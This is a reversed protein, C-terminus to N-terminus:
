RRRLVLSDLGLGGSVCTLRLRHEGADLEILQPEADGGLVAYRWNDRTTSFGGTAPLALDGVSRGDVALTRRVGDDVTCYRLALAYRGKVPAKVTWEVWHGPEAWKTIMRGADGIRDFARATGGDQAVIDEAEVLVVDGADEEMLWLPPVQVTFGQTDSVGEGARLTLCAQHLGPRDYEHEVVRGEGRSGDGFDWQYTVGLGAPVVSASADFTLRASGAFPAVTRDGGAHALPVPPDERLEALLGMLHPTVRIYMSFTKGMGSISRIAPETGKLLHRALKRDPQGARQSLRYAYGIGDFLLFNSWAGASSKPCSTYRFGNVEEVWMDDILFHSAMTIGRAVRPDDTELHYWKLGTLLVAVMFGANGYHAPQCLCHGPVMMRRWGGGKTNFKSTPTQRELVREVMIKAANLYFPDRTARYVALTLILHWGSDRCNSFEYGIMRYTDYHDAIKLATEYSRRDGTLFFHDMHGECWTHSVSFGGRPSGQNRGPLPSKAYYEGVHGICHSYVCGVRAPSAHRHVTDVDRNHLEAEEGARFFRLDGSRAFQLFFAHQTDYEINGWNIVREGWWDGFNLMGYERIRERNGLFADLTRNVKQDYEGVVPRGPDAVALEGFAGSAVYWSPPATAFLPRDLAPTSGDLRLWVEQTKTMGQRLKYGGVEGGAGEPDFWFFLKHEDETGKAWDYEDLALKPMLWLTTGESGVELDKPYNQWFDRVSVAGLRGAFRKGGGDSSEYRDDTHQRAYQEVGGLGPLRWAVSRITSFEDGSEGYAVTMLVRALALGPYVHLRAEYLFPSEGLPGEARLCRRLAGDEETTGSSVQAVHARGEADTLILQGLDPPSVREVAPSSPATAEAGYELAYERSGGSHRFDLLLWKVSGDAWRGTVRAQLPVVRDDADLLRVHRGSGLVAPPFPIGSTVPWDQLVGAVSVPPDVRLPVRGRQRSVPEVFPTRVLERWPTSIERADRTMARIRCRLAVGPTVEPMAVRHNEVGMPEAITRIDEPRSSFAYEVTCQTPWTTIWTLRNETLAIERFEYLPPRPEPKERLLVLDETRCIGEGGLVRLQVEDGARLRTPDALFFLHQKNDDFAAVAVGLRQGRVRIAIVEKGGEDRMIFGIHFAGSVGEPVVATITAPFGTRLANDARYESRDFRFGTLQCDKIWISVNAPHDVLANIRDLGWTQEVGVSEEIDSNLKTKPKDSMAPGKADVYGTAMVGRHPDATESLASLRFRSAGEHQALDVDYCFYAHGGDVATRPIPALRTAGGPAFAIVGSAGSLYRLMFECGHDTRGTSRDNDADLYLQLLCNEGPFPEVFQVRWVFRNGGANAVAVGRMTRGPDALTQGPKPPREWVTMFVESAAPDTGLLAEAEDSMGDNDADQGACFRSLLLVAALFRWRNM